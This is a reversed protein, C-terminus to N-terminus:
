RGARDTWRRALSQLSHDAAARDSPRLIGGGSAADTGCRRPVTRPLLPSTPPPPLSAFSLPGEFPFFLTCTFSGDANPLAILMFSQRPWIHLAHKELRFSGGPGASITLEKYGHSLYEQSYDFREQKQMRGRVASFAGDAGVVLACPVRVQEGHPGALELTATPLDVDTCRHGFFVRVGPCREAANLLSVNLGARAASHIAKGPDKGYPQFHLHGSSDHIMRGPMAIAGALVEDAIGVERLAHIGRVSLALNISRGQEGDCLRPDPRKEYLDVSFGSRGLYCALLTGALGSGVVTVKPRAGSSM